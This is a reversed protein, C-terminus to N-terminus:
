DAKVRCAPEVISVQGGFACICTSDATLVPLSAGGPQNQFIYQSGPSWRQTQPICPQPQLVGMAAATAAQVSPNLLSNCLGFSPINVMPQYDDVNALMLDDAAYPRPVLQLMAPAAGQSCLLTAGRAVLYPM